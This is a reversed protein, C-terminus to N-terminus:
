SGRDTTARGHDHRHIKAVEGGRVQQLEADLWLMRVLEDVVLDRKRRSRDDSGCTLM